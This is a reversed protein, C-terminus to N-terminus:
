WQKVRGLEWLKTGEQLPIPSSAIRVRLLEGLRTLVDTGIAPFHAAFQLFNVAMEAVLLASGVPKYNAGAVVAERREGRGGKRGSRCPVSCSIVRMDDHAACIVEHSTRLPIRRSPCVFLTTEAGHIGPACDKARSLLSMIAAISAVRECRWFGCRQYIPICGTHELTLQFGESSAKSLVATWFCLRTTLQSGVAM